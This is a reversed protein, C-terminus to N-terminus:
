GWCRSVSVDPPARGQVIRSSGPTRRVGPRRRPDLVYVVVGGLAIPAAGLSAHVAFLRAKDRRRAETLAAAQYKSEAILGLLRDVAAALVGMVAGLGGALVLM